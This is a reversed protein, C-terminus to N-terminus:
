SELYEEIADDAKKGAIKTVGKETENGKDDTAVYSTEGANVAEAAADLRRQADQKMRLLTKNIPSMANEEAKQKATSVFLLTMERVIREVTERKTNPRFKEIQMSVNDIFRPIREHSKLMSRLNAPVRPDKEIVEQYIKRVLRRIESM